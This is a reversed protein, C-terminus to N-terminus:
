LNKLKNQLGRLSTNLSVCVRLITLRQYQQYSIPGHIVLFPDMSSPIGRRFPHSPISVLEGVPYWNM